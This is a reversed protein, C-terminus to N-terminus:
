GEVRSTAELPDRSLALVVSAGIVLLSGALQWAGPREGFIPVALAHTLVIGLGSLATVPAVRHLSYARTMTVQGFGGGIGAGLLVLADNSSPWRWNPLAILLLVGLAVLSFHLVVAEASEGPGIKRLWIMAMAYFVAGVTAISAVPLALAFSPRVV